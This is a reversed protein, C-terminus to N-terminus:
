DLRRLQEAHDERVPPRPPGPDAAADADDPRVDQEASGLDTSPHVCRPVHPDDGVPANRERRVDLEETPHDRRLDDAKGAALEDDSRV